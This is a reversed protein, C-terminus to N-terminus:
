VLCPLHSFINAVDEFKFISLRLLFTPESPDMVTIYYVLYTSDDTKLAKGVMFSRQEDSAMKEIVSARLSEVVKSSGINELQTELVEYLTLPTAEADNKFDYVFKVKKETELKKIAALLKGHADLHDCPICDDELM